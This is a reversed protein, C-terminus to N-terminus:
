VSTDPKKEETKKNKVPNDRRIFKKPVMWVHATALFSFIILLGLGVVLKFVLGEM